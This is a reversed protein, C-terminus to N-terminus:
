VTEDEEKKIPERTEIVQCSDCPVRIKENTEAGDLRVHCLRRLVNLEVVTGCGDPTKVYAGPPPLHKREEFYFENEYALCCRLKGCMGTLKQPNPALGQTKAMQISISQFEKLYSECCCILGCPGLSGVAKAEDRAGIQRMEIRIHLRSALEKVLGRFDVREESFFYFIAKKEELEVDVFKMPLGLEQCKEECIRLLELGRETETNYKNIDEESAVRIVRKINTAIEGKSIKKPPVTVLVVREGHECEVVVLDHLKIDETESAFYQIKGAKSFRVGVIPCLETM